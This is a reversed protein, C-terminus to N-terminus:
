RLAGTTASTTAASTGGNTTPTPAAPAVTSGTTDSLVYTSVTVAASLDSSPHDTTTSQPALAISDVRVLRGEPLWPLVLEATDVM